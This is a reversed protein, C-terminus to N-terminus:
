SGLFCPLLSWFFLWFSDTLRYIPRLPSQRVLIGAWLDNWKPKQIKFKQDFDYKEDIAAGYGDGNPVGGGNQAPQYQQQQQVPPPPAPRRNSGFNVPPPPPPPYYQEEEKGRRGYQGSSAGNGQSDNYYEDAEGMTVTQRLNQEM